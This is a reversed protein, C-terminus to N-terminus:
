RTRAVFLNFFMKYGKLRFFKFPKFILDELFPSIGAIYYSIKGLIMDTIIVAKLFVSRTIILEGKKQYKEKFERMHNIVDEPLRFVNLKLALPGEILYALDYYTMKYYAVEKRLYWKRFYGDTDNKYVETGPMSSLYNIYVFSTYRLNKEILEAERNILEKTEFPFNILINIIAKLGHSHLKSILECAQQYTGSKKILRRTNDDFREIGVLFMTVGLDKLMKIEDNTVPIAVSTQIMFNLKRYLPSSTMLTHFENLRKKDITFNSDTIFFNNLKSKRYRYEVQKIMYQASNNRVGSSIVSSKCFSCRYPCGRQFNIQNTVAHNDYKSKIYDDLNVLDFNNFPLTDMDNIIEGPGTDIIEGNTKFIIGPIDKFKCIYNDDNFINRLIIREYGNIIGLFKELSAEAEGKFVVDFNQESMEESSDYSHLGGAIFIKDPFVNRLKDALGYSAYANLTSVSFGIIKVQHRIIYEIFDNIGYRRYISNDEVVRVGFGKEHLYSALALPGNTILSKYSFWMTRCNIILLDM